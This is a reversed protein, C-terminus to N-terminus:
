SRGVARTTVIVGALIMALGVLFPPSLTEGFIAASALPTLVYILATWPYAVALPLARLAFLWCVTGVVAALLGSWLWPNLLWASWPDPAAGAHLGAFKYFVQALVMLSIMGAVFGGARRNAASASALQPARLGAGRREPM